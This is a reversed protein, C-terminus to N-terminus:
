REVLAHSIQDIAREEALDKPSGKEYTSSGLDWLHLHLLEHVLALEWDLTSAKNISDLPLLDEPCLLRIYAERKNAHVTVRAVAQDLDSYRAVVAEVIWDQLRLRKQWYALRKALNQKTLPLM